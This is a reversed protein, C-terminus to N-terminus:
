KTGEALERGMFFEEAEFIERVNSKEAATSGLMICEVFVTLCRQKWDEVEKELQEIRDIVEKDIKADDECEFELWAELRIKLRKVLDDSM